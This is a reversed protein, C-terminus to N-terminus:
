SRRASILGLAVAASPLLQAPDADLGVRQQAAGVARDRPRFSFSERQKGTWALATIETRPRPSSRCSERSAQVLLHQILDDAVLERMM